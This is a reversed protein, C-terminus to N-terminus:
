RVCPISDSSRNWECISSMSLCTNFILSQTDEKELKNKQDPAVVFQANSLEYLFM